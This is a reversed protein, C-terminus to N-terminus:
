GKRETHSITCTPRHVILSGCVMKKEAHSTVDFGVQAAAIDNRVIDLRDM